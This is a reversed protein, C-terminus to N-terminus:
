ANAVHEPLSPHEPDVPHPTRYAALGETVALWCLALGLLLVITSTVFDPFMLAALGVVGLGGARWAHHLRHNREPPPLRWRLAGAVLGTIAPVLPREAPIGAGEAAERASTWTRRVVAPWIALGGNRDTWRAAVAFLGAVAAVLILQVVLSRTVVNWTSGAGAEYVADTIRGLLQQRAIAIAILLAAACGMAIWGLAALARWRHPAVALGIAVLGAAVWPLVNIARDVRQVWDWVAPLQSRKGLTIRLDKGHPLDKALGPAVEELVSRVDDLTSTLNLVLDETDRTVLVHHASSVSRDFVERFPNSSVISEVVSRIFPEALKVKHGARDEIKRVVAQAVADQVPKKDITRNAVKTFESTSLFTGELWFGVSSLVLGIGGLALLLGAVVRRIRLSWTM